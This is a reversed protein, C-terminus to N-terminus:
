YPPGAGFLIMMFSNVNNVIVITLSKGEEGGGLGFHGDVRFAMTLDCRDYCIEPKFTSKIDQNRAANSIIGSTTKGEFCSM